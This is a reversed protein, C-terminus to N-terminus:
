GPLGLKRARQNKIYEHAMRANTKFTPDFDPGGKLNDPKGWNYTEWYIVEWYKLHLNPPTPNPFTTCHTSLRRGNCLFHFTGPEVGAAALQCTSVFYM